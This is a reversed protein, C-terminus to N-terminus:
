IALKRGKRKETYTGDKSDEWRGEGLQLAFALTHPVARGRGLNITNKQTNNINLLTSYKQWRTDVWSCNVFIDINM